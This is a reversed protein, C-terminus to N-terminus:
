PRSTTRAPCRIRCHPSRSAAAVGALVALASRQECVVEITPPFLQSERASSEPPSSASFRTDLILAIGGDGLIARVPSAPCAEAHVSGLNKIVVEQKSVMEDVLLASVKGSRESSSSSETRLM